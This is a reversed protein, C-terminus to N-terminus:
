RQLWDIAILPSSQGSSTLSDSISKHALAAACRRLGILLAPAFIRLRYLAIHLETTM